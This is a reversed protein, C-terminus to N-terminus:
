EDFDFIKCVPIALHSRHEKYSAFQIWHLMEVSFWTMIENLLDTPINIMIRRLYGNVLLKDKIGGTMFVRCPGIKPVQVKSKKLVFQDDGCIELVHITTISNGGAIIVYKEDSTLAIGTFSTMLKDAIDDM